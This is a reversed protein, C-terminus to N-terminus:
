KSWRMLGDIALIFFVADRTMLSWMGARYHLAATVANSILWLWFCIRMKRNNAIVGAIALAGALIGFLETM